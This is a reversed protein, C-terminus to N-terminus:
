GEYLLVEDRKLNEKFNKYEPQISLLDDEVGLAEVLDIRFGSLQFLGRIKGAEIRINVDSNETAEGRAYSGFLFAKKCRIKQM